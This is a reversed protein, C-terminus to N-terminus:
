QWICECTSRFPILKGTIQHKGAQVNQACTRLSVAASTGLLSRRPPADYRTVDEAGCANPLKDISLEFLSRM